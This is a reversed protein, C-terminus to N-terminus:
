YQSFRFDNIYRDVVGNNKMHDLRKNFEAMFEASGERHRNVILHPSPFKFLNTSYTLSKQEEPTFNSILLPTSTLLPTLYFDIKGELLNHFQVLDSDGDVPTIFKDKLLRYSALDYVYHTNVGMRYGMLDDATKPDPLNKRYYLATRHELIPDSILFSEHHIDETVWVIVGDFEETIIGDLAETWPMFRYKVEIGQSQLIESVIRPAIGFYKADRSSFPPWEYAAVMFVKNVVHSSDKDDQARVLPHYLLSLFIVTLVICQRVICRRVHGTPTDPIYLLFSM